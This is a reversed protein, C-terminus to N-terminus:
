DCLFSAVGIDYVHVTKGFRDVETPVVEGREVQLAGEILKPVISYDVPLAIALLEREGLDIVDGDYVPVIKQSPHPLKYNVLEAPNMM